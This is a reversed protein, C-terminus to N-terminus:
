AQPGADEMLILAGHIGSANTLPSCTVLCQITKGRRNVAELTLQETESAGTLCKRLPQKLREVELGIDLNMFHQGRVEDAALGWLERARENWLRIHLDPELVVVAAGLSTLISELFVNVTNLEDTRGRLEENVTELEENTSHLEENMTELEENTSQLEENTTELEENTSQLEENTTELEEVTTQLEEYATELERKSGELEQQVATFRSVDVFTLTTGPVRGDASILPSIQLDIIRKGGSPTPWEVGGVSIAKRESSVQDILSRLELPRYSIELDQFPRGLDDASLGFMTRAEHNALVLIGNEDLVLQSFQAMEFGADRLAQRGLERIVEVGREPAELLGGDQAELTAAKTFVRRRLDIPSFLNSRTLLMESRGLFLFGPDNLAFLFHRLIRAQTEANFYMLTNRCILLDVRSIPADQVLDHHGFIISRRHDKRFALSQGDAEFYRRALAEPVAEIQKASFNAQRGHNLADEDLDTAYIKVRARFREPDLREALLMAISYAEEGSACGACWVRIPADPRKADLIQPVVHETVYEWAEPDRFFSTVNILLADFLAAFEDPNGELYDRYEGFDELGLAQIRKNTRRMLSARKYTTFDFGRSSKVYELLTEFRPDAKPPSM